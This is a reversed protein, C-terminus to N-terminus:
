VVVVSFEIIFTHCLSFFEYKSLSSKIWFSQLADNRKQHMKYIKFTYASIM